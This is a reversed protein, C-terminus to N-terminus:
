LGLPIQSPRLIRCNKSENVSAWEPMLNELAWCRKFDIDRPSTFKFKSKPIVHDIHIQGSLLREWSMGPKFNNEIHTRLENPSFSVLELWRRGAKGTPLSERIAKSMRSNLQGQPTSRVKERHKAQIKSYKERNNGIWRKVHHRQRDKNERRWRKASIAQASKQSDSWNRRAENQRQRIALRNRQYRRREALQLEERHSARYEAKRKRLYDIDVSM